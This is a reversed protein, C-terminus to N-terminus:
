PSRQTRSSHLVALKESISLVKHVRSPRVVSVSDATTHGQVNASAVFDRGQDLTLRALQCKGVCTQRSDADSRYIVGTSVKFPTQSNWAAGAADTRWHSIADSSTLGDISLYSADASAALM